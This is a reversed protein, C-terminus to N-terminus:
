KPHPKQPQKNKNTQTKPDELLFVNSGINLHCVGELILFTMSLINSVSNHLFCAITAKM